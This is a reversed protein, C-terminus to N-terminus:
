LAGTSFSEPNKTLTKLQLTADDNHGRRDAGRLPSGNRENITPHETWSGVRRVIVVNHELLQQWCSCFARHILHHLTVSPAAPTSSRHWHRLAGWRSSDPHAPPRLPLRSLAFTKQTTHQQLAPPKHLWPTAVSLSLADPPSGSGEQTTRPVVCRCCPGAVPLVVLHASTVRPPVVVVLTTHREPGTWACVTPTPYVFSHQTAGPASCQDPTPM